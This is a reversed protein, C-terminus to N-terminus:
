ASRGEGRGLARDREGLILLVANLGEIAQDKLHFCQCGSGDQHRRRAALALALVEVVAMTGRAVDNRNSAAPSNVPFHRSLVGLSLKP